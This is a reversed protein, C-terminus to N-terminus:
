GTQWERVFRAFRAAGIARFLSSRYTEIQAWDTWNGKPWGLLLSRMRNVDLMEALEPEEAIRDVEVLMDPLAAEFGARWNAGQWGRHRENAIREPVKGKLLDRALRRPIGDRFYHETPLRSCLEVLRRAALPERSDVGHRRQVSLWSTGEDISQAVSLRAAPSEDAFLDAIGAGDCQAFAERVHVSEARLMAGAAIEAPGTRRYVRPVLRNWAFTPVHHGFAMALLGPWSGGAFRRYSLLEAGLTALWGTDGLEALRRMGPRSVTFNGRGGTLYADAGAGRAAAYCADIWGLNCANRLPAQTTPLWRELAALPSEPFGPVSIQRVGHMRATGAAREAEDSFWDPPCDVQGGAVASFAMLASKDGILGAATTVVLSSDLGATLDAAIAPAKTALMGDVTHRLEASVAEVAEAHGIRLPNPDPQWWRHQRVHRDSTVKVFHGPLVREVGQVFTATGAEPLASLYAALHALDARPPGRLAALPLPLSAFAVDMGLRTYFLPRQGLADRALILQRAPQDWIAVAFDGEIKAFADPGYRQWARLMLQADDLKSLAESGIGLARGLVERHDIRIQGTLFTREITGVGEAIAGAVMLMLALAIRWGAFARYDQFLATAARGAGGDTM